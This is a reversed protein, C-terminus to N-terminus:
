VLSSWPLFEVTPEKNSLLSSTTVLLMSFALKSFLYKSLTYVLSSVSYFADMGTKRSGIVSIVIWRLPINLCIRGIFLLLDGPGSPIGAQMRLSNAGCIAGNQSIM